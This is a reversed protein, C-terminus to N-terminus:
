ATTSGIRMLKRRRFCSLKSLLQWKKRRSRVRGAPLDPGAGACVAVDGSTAAYDAPPELPRDISCIPFRSGSFGGAVLGPTASGAPGNDVINDLKHRRFQRRTIHDYRYQTGESPVVRELRASAVAPLGYQASPQRTSVSPRSVRSWRCQRTEAPRPGTRPRPRM